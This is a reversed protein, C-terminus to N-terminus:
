HRLLWLCRPSLYRRPRLCRSNFTSLGSRHLCPRYCTPSTPCYRELAKAKRDNPTEAKVVINGQRLGTCKRRVYLKEMYAFLAEYRPPGTVPSRYVTAHVLAWPISCPAQSARPSRKCVRPVEQKSRRDVYRTPSTYAPTAQHLSTYVALNRRDFAVHNIIWLPFLIKNSRM